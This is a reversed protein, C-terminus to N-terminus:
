RCSHVKNMHQRPFFFMILFDPLLFLQTFIEEDTKSDDGSLFFATHHAPQWCNFLFKSSRPLMREQRHQFRFFQPSSLFITLAIIVLTLAINTLTLPMFPSTLPMLQLSHATIPLTPATIFLTLATYYTTLATHTLTPSTPPPTLPMLRPTLATHLLTLGSMPPPFSFQALAETYFKASNPFIFSNLSAKILCESLGASSEPYRPRHSKVNAPRFGAKDKRRSARRFM